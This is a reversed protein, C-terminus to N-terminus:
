QVKDFSEPSAYLLHKTGNPQYYIDNALDIKIGNEMTAFAGETSLEDYIAESAGYSAILISQGEFCVIYSLGPIQVTKGNYVVTTDELFIYVDGGDYLMGGDLTVGSPNDLSYGDGTDTVVTFYDVRGDVVSDRGMHMFTDTLIMAKNNEYYFPYGNTEYQQVGNDIVLSDKTKKMSIGDVYKDPDSFVYQYLPKKVTIREASSLLLVVIVGAAALCLMLIIPMMLQRKDVHRRIGNMSKINNQLEQEM